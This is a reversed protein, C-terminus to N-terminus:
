IAIKFYNKFVFTFIFFVFNGVLVFTANDIKDFM